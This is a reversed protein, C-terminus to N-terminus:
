RTDTFIPTGDPRWLIEETHNGREEIVAADKAPYYIIYRYAYTLSWIMFACAAIMLAIKTTLDLKM